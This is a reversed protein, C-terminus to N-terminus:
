RELRTSAADAGCACMVANSDPTAVAKPATAKGIRMLEARLGAEGGAPWAAFCSEVEKLVRVKGVGPRKSSYDCGALLAFLQIHKLTYHQVQSDVFDSALSLCIPDCRRRSLLGQYCTVDGFGYALMDLDDSVIGDVLGEMALYVLMPDAQWPACLMTVNSKTRVWEQLRAIMDENVHVNATYAAELREIAPTTTAASSSSSSSAAAAAAPAAAAGAASATSTTASLAAARIRVIDATAATKSASRKARVVAEKLLDPRGDAVLVCTIGNEKFPTHWANLYEIFAECGREPCANQAWALRRGVDDQNQSYLAAM